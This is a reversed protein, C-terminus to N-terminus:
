NNQNLDKVSKREVIYVPLSVSIKETNDSSIQSLLLRATLQGKALGDNHITTLPPSVVNCTSIDDFGIVSIDDPISKGASRIGAMVEFALMDSGVFVATANSKAVKTGLPFGNGDLEEFFLDEDPTINYRLLTNKYGMYRIYTLPSGLLHPTAFAIKTHGKKILYETALVAGNYDNIGINSAIDNPYHNDITIISTNASKLVSYFPYSLPGYFIVGALNWNKIFLDLEEPSTLTKLMLYYGANFLEKEVSDILLTRYININLHQQANAIYAVIRSSKSALSSAYMNSTYGLENIIKNVKAITKASVKHTKNHIVYSVTAESVGAAKAIDKITAL